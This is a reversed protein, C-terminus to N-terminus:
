GRLILGALNINTAASSPPPTRNEFTLLRDPLGSRLKPGRGTVEIERSVFYKGRLVIPVTPM